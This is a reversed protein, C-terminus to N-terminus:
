AARERVMPTRLSEYWDDLCQQALAQDARLVPHLQLALALRGNWVLAGNSVPHAPSGPGCICMLADSPWGAATM